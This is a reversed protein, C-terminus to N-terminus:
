YYKIWILSHTSKGDNNWGISLNQKDLGPAGGEGMWCSGVQWFRYKTPNIIAWLTGLEERLPLGYRQTKWFGVITITQRQVSRSSPCSFLQTSLAAIIWIAKGPQKSVFRKRPEVMKSQRCHDILHYFRLYLRLSKFSSPSTVADHAM